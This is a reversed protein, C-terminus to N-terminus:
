PQNSIQQIQIVVFEAPKLPAFGVVINVRGNDIDTQTTTESSCKVFYADQASSGQFAGQLFLTQMFGGVNLRIQAWLPEDNPEFVVWQTGRFLSEEIYLALRRVPVYKWPSSLADNGALTRAGWVVNGAAPFNRLCNIGLPNLIGNEGDTLLGPVGNLSLGSIGQLTADIGAPAKWVGRQADTRAYIGAVVGCPAFSSLRNERLPDAALVWPFYLAASDSVTAPLASTAITGADKWALPPDILVFARRSRAYTVAADWTAQIVDASAPYPQLPPICLLNFLDAKDLMWLGKKTASLTSDGIDSHSIVAGDPTAGNAVFATATPDLFPDVGAAPAGSPAPLTYTGANTIRALDSEQALVTTAFRAANPDISLNRHMELEGTGTDKLALNFLSNAMEGPLLPRTALDVRARLASGWAGENAAILALVGGATATAATANHHVRVILADGGGNTFFQQVAYGLTSEVWLGGYSRVFDAFSQVHVPVDTPGRLARGVFATISTAVGGIARAGSPLEEVYVGPYTLAAPM